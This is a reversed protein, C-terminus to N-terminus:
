RRNSPVGLEDLERLEIFTMSWHIHNKSKLLKPWAHGPRILVAAQASECMRAISSSFLASIGNIGNLPISGLLWSGVELQCNDQIEAIWLVSGPLGSSVKVASGQQQDFGWGSHSSSTSPIHSHEQVICDRYRRCIMLIDERSKADKLLTIASDNVTTVTVIRTIRMGRDLSLYVNDSMEISPRTKTTSFSVGETSGVTENRSSTTEAENTGMQTRSSVQMHGGEWKAYPYGPCPTSDDSVCGADHLWPTHVRVAKIHTPDAMKSVLMDYVSGLAIKMQMCVRGEGFFGTSKHMEDSCPKFCSSTEFRAGVGGVKRWASNDVSCKHLNGNVAVAEVTDWKVDDWTFVLEASAADAHSLLARPSLPMNASLLARTPLHAAGRKSRAVVQKTSKPPQIKFISRFVVCVM